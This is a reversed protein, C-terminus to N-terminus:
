DDHDTKDHVGSVQTAMNRSGQELSNFSEELGGLLQGRENLASSIKTYFSTQAAAASAAINAAATSASSSIGGGSSATGLTPRQHQPLPRDPGGVERGDSFLLSLSLSFTM